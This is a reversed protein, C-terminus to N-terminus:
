GDTRFPFERCIDWFKGNHKLLFLSNVVFTDRFEENQFEPWAEMFAEKTLDRTAVTIHPHVDNMIESGSFGLEENLVTKLRSHISRVPGPNEVRIFIVRPSFCGFGDLSVTFSEERSAFRELIASLTSEMSSKRKFPMQLTIHAPSKLAHGAKYVTKMSEKVVRVRERLEKGPILAIFYLAEGTNQM